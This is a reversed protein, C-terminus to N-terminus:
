KRIMSILKEVKKIMHFINLITEKIGKDALTIVKTMGSDIQQSKKLFTNDQKQIHM